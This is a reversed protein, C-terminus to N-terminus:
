IEKSRRNSEREQTNFLTSYIHNNMCACVCVCVCACVCVCVCVRVCVCVCVRVCACACVSRGNKVSPPFSQPLHRLDARAEQASLEHQVVEMFVYQVTRTCYMYYYLTNPSPISPRSSGYMLIYYAMIIQIIRIIYLILMIYMTCLHIINHVSFNKISKEM